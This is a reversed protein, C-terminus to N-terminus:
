WIPLCALAEFVGPPSSAGFRQLTLGPHFPENSSADRVLEAFSTGPLQSTSAPVTSPAM